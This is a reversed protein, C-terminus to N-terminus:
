AQEGAFISPVPPKLELANVVYAHMVYRGILFLMAMAHAAGISGIVAELEPQVDHGKRNVVAITLRQVAREEPSLPGPADPAMRNVAAIWDRGFGLKESLREHQHREYDNNMLAAVTLSGVETLRDPLAHKLAETMEMFSVLVEPNHGSCKFFEGLYGLRKVRAAVTQQVEPALQEMELRPINKSM